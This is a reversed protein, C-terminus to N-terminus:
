YLQGQKEALSLMLTSIDVSNMACDGNTDALLWGGADVSGRQIAKTKVYSFDRGDVVGDQSEVLEGGSGSTVVDGVLMPYASFDYEPTTNIDTTLVLEGGAKDYASNQGDRAYKMQLHKPGKIFLSVGSTNKFGDLVMAATYNVKNSGDSQAASLPVNTYVRTGGQGLAILNVAWSSCEGEPRVGVFSLKFRVAADNGVDNTLTPTAQVITPTVSPTIGPTTGPTVGPTVTPSASECGESQECEALSEYTGTQSVSCVYKGTSSNCQGRSYKSEGTISYTANVFEDLKISQDINNPDTTNYGSAMSRVTDFTINGTGSSVAKYKVTAVRVIGSKLSDKALDSRVAFELCSGNSGTSTSDIKAYVIETFSPDIQSDITINNKIEQEQGSQAEIRIEPGYCMNVQVFDVKSVESTNAINRTQIYVPVLLDEGVKKSYSIPDFLMKAGAFYAGRRTDQSTQVMSIAAALALVLVLTILVMTLNNKKM